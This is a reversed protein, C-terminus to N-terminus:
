HGRLDHAARAALGPEPLTADGQPHDDLTLQGDAVRRLGLTTLADDDAMPDLAVWDALVAGMFQDACRSLSAAIHPTRPAEPPALLLLDASLWGCRAALLKWSAYAHKVSDPHDAALLVPRAARGKFIRAQDTVEAHVLITDAQPAAAMVEDLMRAASGRTDICRRPLGRAALYSVHPGVSEICSALGLAISEAIPPSTDAADVILVHRDCDVLSATLREIAVGSWVVHPNAVVPVFRMSSGQFLRRLGDAQDGTLAGPLTLGTRFGDSPLRSM